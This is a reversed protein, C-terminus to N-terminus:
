ERQGATVALQQLYQRHDPFNLGCRRIFQQLMAVDHKLAESNGPKLQAADPYIGYGALLCHWSMSPYYHDIQQRALEDSLNQGSLWTKLIQYLSLPIKQNNANARWYETDQRSNLRYHGVIYSRIAEFRQNISDNFQAARANSFQGAQYHEIFAQVTEQVLHLATAELPEIFGQSLGVAVCNKQWHSALRGVKMQLHRCQVDADLLGLSQRFETEAQDASCFASSYVYGNGNRQTLPITWRWGHQMATSITQCDLAQQGPTQVVVAADNFLNEAFSLLPVQLQQQILLGRFGSCDIFLDASIRQGDATVVAAIDGAPTLETAAITGQLHKVGLKRGHEALYQGLLSSDFHYGYNIEFPFNEGAIPALQQQALYTALFFPDPHGEVAIGQRRVYSNYFFAPATYDDPQAAFPHFYSQFGPKSSWGNFRIGTKYTAHCAPMWDAEAIGLFDLLGKLQPTSGEGVGIIGIEPSEILSIRIPQDQWSKAMLNAAIWGATGGGVILIHKQQM